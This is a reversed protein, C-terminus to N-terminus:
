AFRAGIDLGAAQAFQSAGQEEEGLWRLRSIGFVTTDGCLVALKGLRLGLYTGSSGRPAAVWDMVLGDLIEIPRYQVYARLGHPSYARLRNAVRESELSWPAKQHRGGVRPSPTATRTKKQPKGRPPKVSRDVKRVAQVLLKCCLESVRPLLDDFTEQRDIEFAEQLLVPGGWPEENPLFVTVGSRTKGAAVASRLAHAGRLDPLLSPHVEIASCEVAELLGGPLPRGYDVVVILDPKLGAIREWLEPELARRSRKFDVGHDRCWDIVPRPPSEFDGPVFGARPHTVVLRPTVGLEALSALAPVALEHSGLFVVTQIRKV